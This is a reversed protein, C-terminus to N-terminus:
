EDRGFCKDRGNRILRILRNSAPRSLWTWLGDAPTSGTVADLIRRGLNNFYEAEADSSAFTTQKSLDCERLQDFFIKGIRTQNPVDGYIADVFHKSPIDKRPELGLGLMGQDQGFQIVIDFLDAEQATVREQMKNGKMEHAGLQRFYSGKKSMSLDDMAVFPEPLFRELRSTGAIFYGWVSDLLILVLM